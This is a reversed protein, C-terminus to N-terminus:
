RTPFLISNVEDDNLDLNYFEKHFKRCEEKMDIDKFLEPQIVTAAWLPQIAEDASRVCWKFIGYPNVLVKKNKVASLASLVADNEYEAKTAYDRCIIIDPDWELLEEPTVDVFTGDVGHEAAVNIGGGIEIWEKVISNNGETTITKGASYFVTPRKEKPIGNTVATVRDLNEQYYKLLRQAKEAHKEGLIEGILAIYDQIGKMSTTNVQVATLGASTLTDYDAAKGCIIVDPSLKMLEEVNGSSLGSFPTPLTDLGPRVRLMWENKQNSETTAVLKDGADLMVVIADIAPFTGCISNVKEPLKVEHDFQDKVTRTGAAASESEAKAASSETLAGSESEAKETGSEKSTGSESAATSSKQETRGCGAALVFLLVALLLSLLSAGKGRRKM